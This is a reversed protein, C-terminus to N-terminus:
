GVPKSITTKPHKRIPCFSPPLFIVYQSKEYGNVSFAFTMRLFGNPARLIEGRDRLFSPIPIRGLFVSALNKPRQTGESFM